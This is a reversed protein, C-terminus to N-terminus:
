GEVSRSEQGGGGGGESRRQHRARRPRFRKGEELGLERLGDRLGDIAASYPGGQLIVRIRYIRAQQAQVALPVALLGGALSDVAVRRTIM